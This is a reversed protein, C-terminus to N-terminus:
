LQEWKCLSCDLSTRGYKLRSPLARPVSQPLALVAERTDGPWDFTGARWRYFFVAQSRSDSLFLTGNDFQAIWQDTEHVRFGFCGTCYELQGHIGGYCSVMLPLAVTGQQTEATHSPRDLSRALNTIIAPPPRVRTEYTPIYRSTYTRFHLPRDGEHLSDFRTSDASIRAQM